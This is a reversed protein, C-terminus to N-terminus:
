TVYPCNSKDILTLQNPVIREKMGVVPTPYVYCVKQQFSLVVRVSEFIIIIGAMDSTTQFTLESECFARSNSYSNEQSENQRCFPIAERMIQIVVM